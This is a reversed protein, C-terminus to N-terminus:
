IYDVLSYTPALMSIAFIGVGIGIVVMLIPEIITSLDKTKQDVEDEYYQAVGLLMDSIKGTEEGVSIMEGIFVPYLNENELFVASMPEGKEIAARAKKLTDKYLHNQMVDITVDIAMVIEVGAGLLSSLTRATRASQVEKIMFGIVPVRISIIDWLKRGFNSRFFALISVLVILLASFFILTNEVLFSSMVILARTSLPLDVGIGEFTQTLTPVMFILMLIAIVIMVSVIVAPYILAGRVKKTLLYTKELQSAVIKLSSSVTGSEEGARVLSTFLTSFDKPHKKLSESLTEGKGINEEIETILKKLPKSKSQKGMVALARTMPLGADLMASLNKAFIIKQQTKIGGLINGLSFVKGLRSVPEISVLTAGEDRIIKYIDLRDQAEVQREYVKGEKTKAKYKFIPM